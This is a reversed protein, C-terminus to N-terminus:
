TCVWFPILMSCWKLHDLHPSHHACPEPVQSRFPPTAHVSAVMLSLMEAVLLLSRSDWAAQYQYVSKIWSSICSWPLYHGFCLCAYILLLLGSPAIPQVLLCVTGHFSNTVTLVSMAVLEAISVWLVSFFSPDWIERLLYYLCHIDLISFYCILHEGSLGCDQSRCHQSAYQRPEMVRDKWCFVVLSSLNTRKRANLIICYISEETLHM